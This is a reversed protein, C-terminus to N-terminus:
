PELDLVLYSNKEKLIRYFEEKVAKGGTEVSKYMNRMQDQTTNPASIKSYMENTIMKKSLLCDAIEM